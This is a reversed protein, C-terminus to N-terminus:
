LRVIEMLRESVTKAEIVYPFRDVVTALRQDRLFHDPLPPQRAEKRRIKAELEDARPVKGDYTGHIMAEVIMAGAVDEVSEAKKLFNSAAVLEVTEAGTAKIYSALVSANAFGGILARKCHRNHFVAATLNTSKHIAAKGRYNGALVQTPSNDIGGHFVESILEYGQDHFERCTAEDNASYIPSAGVHVLSLLTTSARIVDFFVAVYPASFPSPDFTNRVVIRM